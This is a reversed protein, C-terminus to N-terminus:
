MSNVLVWSFQFMDQQYYFCQGKKIYFIGKLVSSIAKLKGFSFICTYNNNENRFRPSCHFYSSDKRRKQAIGPIPPCQM